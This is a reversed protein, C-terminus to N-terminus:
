LFIVFIGKRIMICFSVHLGFKKGWVVNLWDDLFKRSPLSNLDLCVFFIAINKLRYKKARVVKVMDENPSLTLTRLGDPPTKGLNDQRATDSTTYPALGGGDATTGVLGYDGELVQINEFKGEFCATEPCTPMSDEALM